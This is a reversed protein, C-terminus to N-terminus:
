NFSINTVQLWCGVTGHFLVGAAAGGIAYNAVMHAMLPDLFLRDTTRTVTMMATTTGVGLGDGETATSRCHCGLHGDLPFSDTLIGGGGLPWAVASPPLPVGGGDRLPCAPSLAM